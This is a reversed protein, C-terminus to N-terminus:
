SAEFLLSMPIVDLEDLMCQSGCNSNRSIVNATMACTATVEQRNDVERINEWDISYNGTKTLLDGNIFVTDHSLAILLRNHFEETVYDTELKYEKGITASAVRIRGSYEHYVIQNQTFQPNKIYFPLRVTNVLFSPCYLFGFSDEDCRYTIKTTHRINSTKVFVNSEAIVSGGNLLAIRFCDPRVSFQPSIFYLTGFDTFVQMIVSSVDQLVSGDMSLIRIGTVPTDSFIQFAIDDDSIYPLADSETDGFRVFSFESQVIAM